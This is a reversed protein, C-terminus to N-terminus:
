LFFMNARSPLGPYSFSRSSSNFLNYFQIDPQGRSLPEQSILEQLFLPTSQVCKPSDQRLTCRPPGNNFLFRGRM